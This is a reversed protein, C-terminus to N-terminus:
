NLELMFSNNDSCTVNVKNDLIEFSVSGKLKDFTNDDVTGVDSYDTYTYAINGARESNMAFGTLAKGQNNRIDLSPNFYYWQGKFEVLSIMSSSSVNIIHSAKGGGQLVLYEFLSSIVASHGKNNRLVDPVTIVNNDVTFNSTLYTYVNFIYMDTNVQGYKCQKMIENIRVVFDSVAAMHEEDSNKYVLSVGSSDPLFQMSEVLSFLPFSTYFLSHVDDLLSTNFKVEKEGSIVAACVKEYARVASEDINEYHSDITFNLQSNSGEFVKDDGSESNDAKTCATFVSLILILSLLVSITKKM